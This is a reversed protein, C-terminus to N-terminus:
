IVEGSVRNRFLNEMRRIQKLIFEGGSVINQFLTEPPSYIKDGTSIFGTM